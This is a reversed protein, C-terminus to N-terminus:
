LILVTLFMLGIGVLAGFAWLLLAEITERGIRAWNPWRVKQYELDTLWRGDYLRLGIQVRQKAERLLARKLLAKIVKDPDSKTM